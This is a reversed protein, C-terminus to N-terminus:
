ENAHRVGNEKEACLFAQPDRREDAKLIVFCTLTHRGPNSRPMASSPTSTGHHPRIPTGLGTVGPDGSVPDPRAIVGHDERM